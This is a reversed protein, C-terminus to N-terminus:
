LRVIHPSHLEAVSTQKAEAAAAISLHHSTHGSILTQSPPVTHLREYGHEYLLQTLKHNDAVVDVLQERAEYLAHQIYMQSQRIAQLASRLQQIQVSKAVLEADRTDPETPATATASAAAAAAAKIAQERVDMYAAGSSTPKGTRKRYAKYQSVDHAVSKFLPCLCLLCADCFQM